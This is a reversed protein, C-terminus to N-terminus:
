RTAIQLIWYFLGFMSSLAVIFTCFLTFKIESDSLQYDNHFRDKTKVKVFDRNTM